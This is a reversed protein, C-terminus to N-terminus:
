RERPPLVLLYHPKRGEGDRHGEEESWRPGRRGGRRKAREELSEQAVERHRLAPVEIRFPVQFILNVTSKGLATVPKSAPSYFLWGSARARGVGVAPRWHARGRGRVPVPGGCFM